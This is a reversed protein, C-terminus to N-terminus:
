NDMILDLLNMMDVQNSTFKVTEFMDDESEQANQAGTRLYLWDELMASGQSADDTLDEIFLSFLSSLSLGANDAMELLRSLIEDQLQLKIIMDKNQAKKM